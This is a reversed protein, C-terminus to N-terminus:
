FTADNALKAPEVVLTRKGVAAQAFTGAGTVSAELQAKVELTHIGNGVNLAGWNFANAARTNQFLEIINIPASIRFARNCFVVSGDDPDNFIGDANSDSTVPVRQGDLEVWVTVKAAAESDPSVIDTWLACEGTLQIILDTPTSNRFTGRLLTVPPSSSGGLGVQTQMVEVVSASVHIKDAPEHTASVPAVLARLGFLSLTATLLAALGISHARKM